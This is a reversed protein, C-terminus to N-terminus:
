RTLRSRIILQENDYRAVIQAYQAILWLCACKEEETKAPRTDARYYELAASSHGENQTYCTLERNNEWYFIAPKMTAKEIKCVAYLNEM